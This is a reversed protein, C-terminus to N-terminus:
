IERKESMSFQVFVYLAIPREISSSWQVNANCRSRVDGNYWSWKRVEKEWVYLKCKFKWHLVDYSWWKRTLPIAFCFFHAHILPRPISVSLFRSTSTSASTCKLRNWEKLALWVNQLERLPIARTPTFQRWMIQDQSCVVNLQYFRDIIVRLLRNIASTTHTACEWSAHMISTRTSHWNDIDFLKWSLANQPKSLEHYHMGVSACRLLKNATFENIAIRNIEVGCM